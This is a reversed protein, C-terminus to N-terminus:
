FFINQNSYFMELTIMIIDYIGLILLLHFILKVVMLKFINCWGFIKQRIPRICYPFIHSFAGMVTGAENENEHSFTPILVLGTSYKPYKGLNKRIAYPRYVVVSVLHSKARFVSPVRFIVDSETVTCATETHM